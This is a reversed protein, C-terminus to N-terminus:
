NGQFIEKNLVLAHIKTNKAFARYNERESLVALYVPYDIKDDLKNENM